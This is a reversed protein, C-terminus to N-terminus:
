LVKSHRAPVPVYVQRSSLPLLHVEAIAIVEWISLFLVRIIAIEGINVALSSFSWLNTLNRQLVAWCLQQQTDKCTCFADTVFSWHIDTYGYTEKSRMCNTSIIQFLSIWVCTRVCVSLNRDQCNNNAMKKESFLYLWQFVPLTM